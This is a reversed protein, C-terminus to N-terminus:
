TVETMDSGKCGWMAQWAGRDISHEWALISSHTTAGGGPSRGLEPISGRDGANCASEKGSLWWPPRILSIYVYIGEKNLRGGEGVM